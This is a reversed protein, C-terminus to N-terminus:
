VMSVSCFWDSLRIDLVRSWEVVDAGNYTILNYIFSTIVKISSFFRKCPTLCCDDVRQNIIILQNSMKKLTRVRM